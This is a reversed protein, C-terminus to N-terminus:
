FGLNYGPGILKRYPTTLRLSPGAQIRRLIAPWRTPGFRKLLMQRIGDSKRPTQGMYRKEVPPEMTLGAPLCFTTKFDRIIHGPIQTILLFLLVTNFSPANQKPM